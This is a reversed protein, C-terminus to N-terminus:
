DVNAEESTAKGHTQSKSRNVIFLVVFVAVVPVGILLFLIVTIVLLETIGLGFMVWVM